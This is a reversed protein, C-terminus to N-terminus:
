DKEYKAKVVTKIGGRVNFEGRVELRRPKAAAAIDDLIRNVANEHFIGANRFAIFYMKLSKLEVCLKDPVYEIYITAFDPLGIKPCLCTFESYEFDIAYDRDPYKNEFAEIAPLKLRKINEQLGKYSKKNKQGDDITWRRDDM